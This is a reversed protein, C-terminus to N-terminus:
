LHDTRLPPESLPIDVTIPAHDSLPVDPAGNLDQLTRGFHPAFKYSPGPRESDTAYAKVFFWDLKYEGVIGGFNRALAFTYRFGKSARQNSDSLTGVMDEASRKAEGRFDFMYRDDFHFKGLKKFLA